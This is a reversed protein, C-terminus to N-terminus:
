EAISSKLAKSAGNGHSSSGLSYSHGHWEIAKAEEARGRPAGTAALWAELAAALAEFADRVDGLAFLLAMWRAKAASSAAVSARPIGSGAGGEELLLSDKGAGASAVAAAAQKQNIATTNRARARSLSLPLSFSLSLSLSLSPSYANHQIPPPRSFPPISLLPPSPFSFFFSVASASAESRMKTLVAREQELRAAREREREARSQVADITLREEAEQIMRADRMWLLEEQLRRLAPWSPPPPVPPQAAKKRGTVADALAGHRYAAAAARAAAEAEAVADLVLARAIDMVWSAEGREYFGAGHPSALRSYRQKMLEVLHAPFGGAAADGALWLATAASMAAGAADSVARPHLSPSAHVWSPLLRHAFAIASRKKALFLPVYVPHRSLRRKGHSLSPRPPAPTEGKAAPDDGKAGKKAAAAAEVDVSDIKNLGSATAPTTAAGGGGGEETSSKPVCAGIAGRVVVPVSPVRAVILENKAAALSDRVRDRLASCRLLAVAVEERHRERARPRSGPPKPAAFAPLLDAATPLQRHRQRPQKGGTAPHGSLRLKGPLAQSPSPSPSPRQSSASGAGGGAEAEAEGDDEAAEDTVGEEDSGEDGGEADSDPAPAPRPRAGGVLPEFAAEAVGRLGAVLEATSAAARDSGTRPFWVISLITVLLVGIVAAVTRTSADVMAVRLEGRVRPFGLRWFSPFAVSVYTVAVLKGACDFGAQSVLLEGCLGSMFALLTAAFPNHFLVGFLGFASGLLTGFVREICKRGQQNQNTPKPLPLSIFSRSPSLSALALRPSLHFLSVPPSLRLSLSLSHPALSLPPNGSLSLPPVRSSTAALSAAM